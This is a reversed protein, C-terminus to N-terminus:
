AARHQTLACFVFAVTLISDAGPALARAAETLRRGRAYRMVSRGIAAAFARTLHFPSVGSVDAIDELRLEASLHSEIFWIAKAVPDNTGATM